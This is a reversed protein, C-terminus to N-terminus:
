LLGSYCDDQPIPFKYKPALRYDVALISVGSEYCYYKLCKDYDSVSGAVFGGGHYYVAAPGNREKKNSTYWYLDIDAGDTSKTQFLEVKTNSEEVEMPFKLGSILGSVFDGVHEVNNKDFNANPNGNEALFDYVPQVSKDISFTM